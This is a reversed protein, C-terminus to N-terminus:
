VYPLPRSLRVASLRNDCGQELAVASFLVASEQAGTGLLYVCGPIGQGPRTGRDPVGVPEPM